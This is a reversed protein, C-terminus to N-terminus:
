EIEEGEEEHGPIDVHYLVIDDALDEDRFVERELAGLCTGHNHGAAHLTLISVVRKGGRRM